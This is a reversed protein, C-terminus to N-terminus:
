KSKNEKSFICSDGYSFFIFEYGYKKNLEDFIRMERELTGSEKWTRFSYDFTFFVAVRM